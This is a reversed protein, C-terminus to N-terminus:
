QDNSAGAALFRAVLIAAASQGDGTNPGVRCILENNERTLMVPESDNLKWPLTGIDPAGLTL